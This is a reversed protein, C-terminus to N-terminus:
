VIWISNFNTNTVDMAAGYYLVCKGGHSADATWWSCCIDTQSWDAEARCLVECQEYTSADYDCADNEFTGVVHDVCRGAVTTTDDASCRQGIIWEGAESADEVEKYSRQFNKIAVLECTNSDCDSPNEFEWESRITLGEDSDVGDKCYWNNLNKIDMSSFNEVLTSSEATAQVTSMKFNLNLGM